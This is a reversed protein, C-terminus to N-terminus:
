GIEGRLGGHLHEFLRKADRLEDLLVLVGREVDDVRPPKPAVNVHVRKERVTWFSDRVDQLGREPRLLVCVCEAVSEEFVVVVSPLCLLARLAFASDALRELVVVAAVGVFVDLLLIHALPPRVVKLGPPGLFRRRTRSSVPLFVDPGRESVVVAGNRLAPLLERLLPSVANRALDLVVYTGCVLGADCLVRHLEGVPVGLQLRHALRVLPALIGDRLLRPLVRADLSLLLRVRVRLVARRCLVGSPVVRLDLVRRRPEAVAIPNGGVLLPEAVARVRLHHSPLVVRHHVLGRPLHDPHWLRLCLLRRM